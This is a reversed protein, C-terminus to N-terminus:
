DAFLAERKMNIIDIFKRCRKEAIKGIKSATLTSVDAFELDAYEAVIKKLDDGMEGGSKAKKSTNISKPSLSVNGLTNMYDEYPITGSAVGKLKDQAVLHDIDFVLETPNLPIRENLVALYYLVPRWIKYNKQKRPRCGDEILKIWGDKDMAVIRDGPNKVHLSLKSDGSGRWLGYAYEYILRDLLACSEHYLQDRKVGTDCKLYKWRKYVIAIFEYAPAMGLLDVLSIGWKQLNQYFAKKMLLEIAGNLDTALENIRVVLDGAPDNELKEINVASTGDVLCASILKFGYIVRQILEAAVKQRSKASPAPCIFDKLNIRDLFTACVDWNVADEARAEGEGPIGLQDYLVNISNKVPVSLLSPKVKQNWFPKASLLEEAKLQTGGHNVLTFINQGDLANANEIKILGLQAETFVRNESDVIVQVDKLLRDRHNNVYDFFSSRGKPVHDDDINVEFAAIFKDVSFTKANYEQKFKDVIFKRLLEPDVRKLAKDIYPLAVLYKSFDWREQWSSYCAGKKKTIKHVMLINDLLLPLNAKSKVMANEAEKAVEENGLMGQGDSEAESERETGVEEDEESSEEGSDSKDKNLYDGVGYWFANRVEDETMGPKIKLALYAASCLEVPNNIIKKLANRRQRGDLLWNFGDLANYIVVGLPFGKFVSIALNFDQVSTWTSRRQFRPLKVKGDSNVFDTITLPSIGYGMASEKESGDSGGNRDM